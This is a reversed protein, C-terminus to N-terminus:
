EKLILALSFHLYQPRGRFGARTDRFFFFDAIGNFRTEYTIEFHLWDQILGFNFTFGAEVRDRKEEFRPDQSIIPTDDAVISFMPGLGFKFKDLKFGAKIPVNIFYTTKDIRDEFAQDIIFSELQFGTTIRKFTIEPQFYLYENEAFGVLGFGVGLDQELVTLRYLLFDNFDDYLIEQQRNFSLSLDTKVGLRLQASVDQWSM